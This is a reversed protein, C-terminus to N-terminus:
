TVMNLEPNGLVIQGCHGRWVNDAICRNLQHKRCRTKLLVTNIPFCPHCTGTSRLPALLQPWCGRQLSASFLLGAMVLRGGTCGRPVTLLHNFLFKPPPPQASLNPLPCHGHLPPSLCCTSRRGLTLPAIGSPDGPGNLADALLSVQKTALKNDWREAGKFSFLFLSSPPTSSHPCVRAPAVPHSPSNSSAVAMWWSPQGLLGPVRALPPQPLPPCM